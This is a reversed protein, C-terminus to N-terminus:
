ATTGLALLIGTYGSRFPTPGAPLRHIRV